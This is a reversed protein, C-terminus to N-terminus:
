ESTMSSPYLMATDCPIVYYYNYISNQKLPYIGLIGPDHYGDLVDELVLETVSIGDGNLWTQPQSTLSWALLGDLGLEM